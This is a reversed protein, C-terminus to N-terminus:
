KEIERLVANLFSERATYNEWYDQFKNLCGLCRALRCEDVLMLRLYSQAWSGLIRWGDPLSVEIDFDQKIGDVWDQTVDKKNCEEISVPQQSIM